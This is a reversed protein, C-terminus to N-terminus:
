FLLENRKQQYEGPTIGFYKKFVRSFYADNCFGMQYAIEKISHKENLLLSISSNMRLMLLYNAPTTHLTKTFIKHFYNPSLFCSAALQELKVQKTYNEKMYRIAPEITQIAITKVSKCSHREFLKVILTQIFAQIRISEICYDMYILDGSILQEINKMSEIPVITNEGSFEVVMPMSLLMHHVILDKPIFHLWHTSFSDVCYQSILRSGNIVYLRGEQLLYEGQEDRLYIAGETIWYIKFCNDIESRGKNWSSNGSHIGGTLVEITSDLHIM